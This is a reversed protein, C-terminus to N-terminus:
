DIFKKFDIKKSSYTKENSYESSSIKLFWDSSNRLTQFITSETLHKKPNKRSAVYLLILTKIADEFQKASSVPDDSMFLVVESLTQKKLIEYNERKLKMM